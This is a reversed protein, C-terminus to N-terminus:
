EEIWVYEFLIYSVAALAGSFALLFVVGGAAAFGPTSIASASLKMGVWLVPLVVPFSIVTFLAGRGSAKAAIAALLTCSSAVALSGAAVIIVLLWPSAVAVNMFFIYLPTIVAALMYLVAINFALKAGYVAGPSAHLRLFLATGEEEERIFVHALGNMASFYLILWFIVAHIAPGVPVAGASLSIALTTIVAFSVAVSVGFRNRFEIRFDKVINNWLANAL